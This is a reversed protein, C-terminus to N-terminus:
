QANEKEKLKVTNEKETKKERTVQQANRKFRKKDETNLETIQLVSPHLWVNIKSGDKKSRQIGEVSVRSKKTNVISIKGIKKKFQGRMIKVTDGKRLTVNRTSYKKRLEKTLNAALLERKIHLPANALFKRQKRPQRSANWTKRFEAKM